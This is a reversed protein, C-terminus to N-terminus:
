AAEEQPPADNAAIPESLLESAKVKGRTVKEIQFAGSPSPRSKGRRVRSAQSRSCGLVQALWQDDRNDGMWLDLKTQTMAAIHVM